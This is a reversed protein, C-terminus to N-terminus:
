PQLAPDDRLHKHIPTHTHTLLHPSSPQHLNLAALWVIWAVSCKTTSEGIWKYPLIPFRLSMAPRRHSTTVTPSPRHPVKAISRTSQPFQRCHRATPSSIHNRQEVSCSRWTEKKRIVGMCIPLSFAANSCPLVGAATIFRLISSSELDKTIWHQLWIEISTRWSTKRAETDGAYFVWPAVWWMFKDSRESPDDETQSTKRWYYM